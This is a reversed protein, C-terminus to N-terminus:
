RREAFIMAMRRASGCDSTPADGPWSRAKKLRYYGGGLTANALEALM